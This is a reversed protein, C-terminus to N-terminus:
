MNNHINFAPGVSLDAPSLATLPTPFPLPASWRLLGVDLSRIQMSKQQDDDADNL